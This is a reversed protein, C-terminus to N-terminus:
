IPDVKHPYLISQCLNFYRIRDDLGNTGGNVLKTVARIDGADAAKNIRRTEWFWGAVDIAYPLEAVMDPSAEFNVDMFQSYRRYNDRGTLQIYGRGRFLYGDGDKVNGLDKRGEYRRQAETPGWLEKSYRFGGSEHCVQALFHCVRLPTTIGYDDMVANLVECFEDSFKSKSRGTIRSLHDSTVTM